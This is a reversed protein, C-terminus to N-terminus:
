RRIEEMRRKNRRNRRRIEEEAEDLKENGRTRIKEMRREKRRNIRRIEM